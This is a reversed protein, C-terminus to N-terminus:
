SCEFPTLLSQMLKLDFISKKLINQDQGYLEQSKMKLIHM